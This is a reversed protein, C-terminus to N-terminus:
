LALGNLHGPDEETLYEQWDAHRGGEDAMEKYKAELEKMKDKYLEGMESDSSTVVFNSTYSVCEM